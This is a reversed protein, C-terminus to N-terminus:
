FKCVQERMDTEKCNVKGSLLGEEESTFSLGVEGSHTQAVNHEAVRAGFAPGWSKREVGKAGVGLSSGRIARVVEAVGCPCLCCAYNDAQPVSFSHSSAYAGSRM